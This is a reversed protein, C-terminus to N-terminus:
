AHDEYIRFYANSRVSRDEPADLGSVAVPLHPSASMLSLRSMLKSSSIPHGYMDCTTTTVIMEISRMKRWSSPDLMVSVVDEPREVPIGCRDHLWELGVDVEPLM